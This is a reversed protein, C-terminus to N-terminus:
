HFVNECMCSLELYLIFRNEVTNEIDSISNSISVVAHYLVNSSLLVKPSVILDPESYNLIDFFGFVAVLLDAVLFFFLTVTFIQFISFHYSIFKPCYPGFISLFIESNVLLLLCLLFSLFDKEIGSIVINHALHVIEHDLKLKLFFEYEIKDKFCTLFIMKTLFIHFLQDFIMIEISHAM